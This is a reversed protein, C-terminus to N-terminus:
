KSRGSAHLPCLDRTSKLRDPALNWGRETAKTQADNTALERSLGSGMEVTECGPEDCKLFALYTPTTV